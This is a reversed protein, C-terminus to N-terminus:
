HILQDSESMDVLNFVKIKFGAVELMSGTEALLEGSPDTCINNKKTENNM